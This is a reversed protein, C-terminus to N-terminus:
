DGIYEFHCGKHTKSYGYMVQTMGLYTFGMEKLEKRTAVFQSGNQKTVLIKSTHKLPRRNSDINMARTSSLILKTSILAMLEDFIQKEEESVVFTEIASIANEINDVKHDDRNVKYNAM